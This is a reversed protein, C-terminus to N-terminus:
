ESTIKERALNFNTEIERRYSFCEFLKRIDFTNGSKVGHRLFRAFPPRRNEEPCGRKM